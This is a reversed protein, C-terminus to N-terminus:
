VLGPSTCNWRGTPAATAAARAGASALADLADASLDYVSLQYGARLLNHAMPAGMNGLGISAIHQM